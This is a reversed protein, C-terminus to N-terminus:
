STSSEESCRESADLSPRCLLEVIQLEEFRRITRLATACSLHTHAHHFPDLGFILYQRHVM